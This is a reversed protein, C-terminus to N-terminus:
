LTIPTKAFRTNAIDYGFYDSIDADLAVLGQENLKMLGIGTVMKTVSAIRFYTNETVPIQRAFEMYGYYREYVIQGGSIIVLAGGKTYSKKFSDDVLSNLENLTLAAAFLPLVALLACLVLPLLRRM